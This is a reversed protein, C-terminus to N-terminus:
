GFLNTIFNKLNTSLSNLFGFKAEAIDAFGDYLTSLGDKIGSTITNINTTDITPMCTVASVLVLALLLSANLFGSMKM